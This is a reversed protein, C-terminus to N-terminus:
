APRGRGAARAARRLAQARLERAVIRYAPRLEGAPGILASDWTTARADMNWHYVYVRTARRSIPVLREFLFRTAGAAHSPSEPFPVKGRNKRWVIGGTETFWVQGKVAKLMRRTGTTRRRNADIYNHLGWYRPEEHAARKFSRVWRVMNPMDLVEAALIRCDRCDRRLKRYYAAVLAPRHCTPEGCHNAENWTAYERVWPYRARFRRFEYLFREPSPLSRRDTLSHGFSVLPTVGAARAARLWDDIKQAEWPSSLADWGVAIRAHRVGSREFRADFFMDPKNDAIGITLAGAAAPLALLGAVAALLLSLWARASMRTM